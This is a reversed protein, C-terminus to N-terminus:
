QMCAFRFWPGVFYYINNARYESITIFEHEYSNYEFLVDM